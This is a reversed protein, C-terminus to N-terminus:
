RAQTLGPGHVIALRWLLWGIAVPSLILTEVTLGQIGSAPVQKRLLGYFGFTIALVISVMPVQGLQVTMGHMLYM